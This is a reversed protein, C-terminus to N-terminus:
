QFDCCLGEPGVGSFQPLSRHWGFSNIFFRAKALLEWSLPASPAVDCAGLRLVSACPVLTPVPVPHGLRLAGLRLPVVCEWPARQEGGAPHLCQWCPRVVPQPGLPAFFTSRIVHPGEDPFFFRPCLFSQVLLISCAGVLNKFRFPSILQFLHEVILQYWSCVMNMYFLIWVLIQARSLYMGQFSAGM